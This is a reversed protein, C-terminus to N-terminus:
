HGPSSEESPQIRDQLWSFLDTKLGGNKPNKPIVLLNQSGRIKLAVKTEAFSKSKAVGEIEAYRLERNTKRGRVTFYDPYFKAVSVSETYARLVTIDVPFSLVVLIYLASLVESMPYNRSLLNGVVILMIFATSFILVWADGLISISFIPQEHSHEATM